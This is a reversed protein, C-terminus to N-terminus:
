IKLFRNGVWHAMTFKSRRDLHFGNGCFFKIKFFFNGCKDIKQPFPNWKCPRDCNVIYCPTPFAKKFIEFKWIKLFNWVFLPISRSLYNLFANSLVRSRSKRYKTSRQVEDRIKTQFYSAIRCMNFFFNKCIPWTSRSCRGVGFEIM